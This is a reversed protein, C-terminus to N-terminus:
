VIIDDKNLCKLLYSNAHRYNASVIQENVVPICIEMAQQLVVERHRRLTRGARRAAVLTCSDAIDKLRNKIHAKLTSFCNEIPNLFPSWPPLFKMDTEPFQEQIGRHCPANDFLILSPESEELLASLESIFGSFVDATTTHFNIQHHFLGARDSIAAILTVNGGRDGGVTRSVREGVQARGFSRRTYLNFGCEDVYIRHLQLGREYMFDAYLRRAEKTEPSNRQHPIDRCMKVTILQGDLARNVTSDSVVPKRTFTDRLTENMQKVTITPTAEILSIIFDLSENDLKQKRGANGRRTEISGRDKYTRVISYATTRKIGLERATILFDENALYKDVIRNKDADSIVSRQRPM